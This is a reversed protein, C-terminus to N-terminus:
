RLSAAFQHAPLTAILALTGEEDQGALCAAGYGITLLLV